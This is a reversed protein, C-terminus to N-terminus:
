CGMSTHGAGPAGLARAEEASCWDRQRWPLCVALRGLVAAAAALLSGMVKGQSHSQGRRSRGKKLGTKFPHVPTLLGPDTEVSARALGESEACVQGIRHM